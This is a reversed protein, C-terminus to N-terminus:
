ILINYNLCITLGARAFFAAEEDPEFGVEEMAFVLLLYVFKISKM